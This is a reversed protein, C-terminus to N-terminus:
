SVCVNKVKNSAKLVKKLSWLFWDHKPELTQESRLFLDFLVFLEDKQM